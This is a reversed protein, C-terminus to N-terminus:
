RATALVDLMQRDNLKLDDYTVYIESSTHDEGVLHSLEKAIVDVTPDRSNAAWAPSRLVICRAMLPTFAFGM